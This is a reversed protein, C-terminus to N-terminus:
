VSSEVQKNVTVGILKTNYTVITFSTRERIEKEAQTYKRYIFTVSKNSIITYGAGESFKNVLNLLERTSYKPEYIYVIMDDAFLSIKVEEKEL